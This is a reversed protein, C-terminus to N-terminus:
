IFKNDMEQPITVPIVFVRSENLRGWRDEPLFPQLPIKQVAALFDQPIHQEFSILATKRETIEIPRSFSLKELAALTQELKCLTFDM